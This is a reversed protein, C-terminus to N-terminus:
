GVHGPHLAACDPTGAMHGHMGAAHEFTGEPRGGDRIASREMRRSRCLQPCGGSLALRGWAQGAHPM